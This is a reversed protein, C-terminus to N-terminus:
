KEIEQAWLARIKALHREVARLVRNLKKAIEENTYGEMKWLAIEQLEPTLKALLHQYNEEVQVAFEPTPEESIMEALDADTAQHYKGGGRRQTNEGKVQDNAKRRTLVVLLRWLNDRDHLDPFRPAAQFFSYMASLAAGEPDLAGAPANDFKNEILKVLKRFYLELLPSLSRDDGAKVKALYETIPIQPADAYPIKSKPFIM